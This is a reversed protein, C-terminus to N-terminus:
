VVFPADQGMVLETDDVNVHKKGAKKLDQYGLGICTKNINLKKDQEIKSTNAFIKYAKLTEEVEFLQSRLTSGVEKNCKDKNELYEIKQKLDLMGVCALELEENRTELIKVKLVLNENEENAALTSTHINFMEFSLDEVTQKYDSNSMEVTSLLSVKSSTPTSEITDAMLAINGYEETGDNDSDDWSKGEAIYAKGQQKKLLAEYKQKIEDYSERQGRTQKPKRCETSFHGSENCNYCKFKSIDVM